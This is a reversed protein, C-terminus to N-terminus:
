QFTCCSNFQGKKEDTKDLEQADPKVLVAKKGTM